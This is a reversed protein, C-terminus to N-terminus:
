RTPVHRSNPRMRFVQPSESSMKNAERAALLAADRRTAAYESEGFAVFMGSYYTAKERLYPELFADVTDGGASYLSPRKQGIIKINSGVAPIYWPEFLFLTPVSGDLGLRWEGRAIEYDFTGTSINERLLTQIYAFNAPVAFSFTTATELLSEDEELDLLWGLNRADRAAMNIFSTLQSTSVEANGVDHIRLAIDAWLESVLM